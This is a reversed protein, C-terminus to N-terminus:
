EGKARAMFALVSKENHPYTYPGKGGLVKQRFCGVRGTDAFHPQPESAWIGDTRILVLEEYPIQLAARTTLAQVKSWVDQSWHPQFEELQYKTLPATVQAHYLDGSVNDPVSGLAYIESETDAYVDLHRVSSHLKGIPDILLHRLADRLMSRIPERIEQVTHERLEILAEGWARLPDKGVFGKKCSDPWLMRRQIKLPWDHQLALQVQTYGAWSVFTEGPQNPYISRKSRSLDRVPLLGVHCWGYPVTAEVEYFGPVYPLYEWGHDLIPTGVPSNRICAAYMWRGDYCYAEQLTSHQGANIIENRSQGFQTMLVSEIDKPLPEYSTDNPLKRRLLDMGTRAATLSIEVPFAAHTGKHVSSPQFRQNLLKHLQKMTLVCDSLQTGVPAEFFRSLPLVDIQQGGISLIGANDGDYWRVIEVRCAEYDARAPYISEPHVYLGRPSPMIYLARTDVTLLADTLSAREGLDHLKSVDSYVRGNNPNYYCATHPKREIYRRTLTM